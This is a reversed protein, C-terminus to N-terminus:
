PIWAMALTLTMAAPTMISIPQRRLLQSSYIPTHQNEGLLNQLNSSM